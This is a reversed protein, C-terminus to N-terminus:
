ILTVLASREIRTAYPAPAQFSQPQATKLLRLVTTTKLVRIAFFKSLYFCWLFTCNQKTKSYGSSIM